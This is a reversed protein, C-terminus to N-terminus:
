MFIIIPKKTPLPQLKGSFHPNQQMAASEAGSIGANGPLITPATGPTMPLSVHAPAIREELKEIKFRSKKPEERPEM